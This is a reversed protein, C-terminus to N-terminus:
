WFWDWGYDDYYYDGRGGWNGYEDWDDEYDDYWYDDYGYEDEFWCNWSDGYDFCDWGWGSDWYDDEYCSDDCYDWDDWDYDTEYDDWGAWSDDWDDYDYFSEYGYADVFNELWAVYDNDLGINRFVYQLEDYYESDGYPLSVALGTLGSDGDTARVYVLAEDLAASLAASEDSKVSESLSLIDTVYYDAMDYDEDEYGFFDYNWNQFFRPLVRGGARRTVKRSYNNGILSDENSYAFDVWATFLLKMYSEDIVAMISEDGDRDNENASVMDDCIKKCLETTEISTNNYLAKFWNTYAWGLGSEFDESLVMYDCFDYCACCVEMCSMLCCDMGIFDFFVGAGKLAQQIEDITLSATEDFVWEDYGFGYVPGGGHNWFLLVYRDAPYNQVGWKIFNELTESQTCDLQGLDDKVLTLGDGSVSYIQSRDSAIGFKRSWKSTGLTEVIVNVKESSGAAVIESLDTTAEDSESELNSGNMYLLVTVTDEGNGKVSTQKQRVASDFLADSSVKNVDTSSVVSSVSANGTRSVEPEEDDSLLAWLVFIVVLFLLLFFAWKWGKGSKKSLRSM